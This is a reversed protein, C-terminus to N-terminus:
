IATVLKSRINLLLQFDPLLRHVAAAVSAEIRIARGSGSAGGGGAAAAAVTAKLVRQM